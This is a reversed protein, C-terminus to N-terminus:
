FIVWESKKVLQPQPGETLAVIYCGKSAYRQGPGFSLRPYGVGYGTQDELMDFLDLFYDRYRNNKLGGFAQAFLNIQSYVKESITTNTSHIDRSTWFQNVAVRVDKREEPLGYPYTINTFSRIKDPLSSLGKGLLTSSAFVMFPKEPVEGLSEIGALDQPGLWALLVADPHQASLKKWFEGGTPEKAAITTNIVPTSGLKKWSDAFGQALAKGEDNERFVQVIQKDPYLKLNRALYKAAAEGEQYYGKSFYLTYWNDGSIVPLDTIPFICPVSNKESFEHIPAWSGTVVGSVLAFVPQQQYYKELQEKWTDQPGKLEWVDLVLQAPFYKIFSQMPELMSKRDEPKVGDSVVTALRLVEPTAGPSHTSSLNKLYFIMIAMDRDNLTYLPMTTTM